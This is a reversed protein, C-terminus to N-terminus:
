KLGLIFKKYMIKELRYRLSHKALINECYWLNYQTRGLPDEFIRPEILDYDLIFKIYDEDSINPFISNKYQRDYFEDFTETHKFCYTDLYEDKRHYKYPRKLWKFFRERRYRKSYKKLIYKLKNLHNLKDNGKFLYMELFYVFVDDDIGDPYMSNTKKKWADQTEKYWDFYNKYLRNIM